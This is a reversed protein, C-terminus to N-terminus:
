NLPCSSRRLLLLLLLLLAGTVVELIILLLLPDWQGTVELVGGLLLLVRPREFHRRLHLLLLLLLEKMLYLLVKGHLLHLPDRATAGSQHQASRINGEGDVPPGAAAAPHYGSRTGRPMRRLLLLSLLLAQRRGSRAREKIWLPHPILCLPLM